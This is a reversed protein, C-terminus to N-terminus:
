AILAITAEANEAWNSADEFRIGRLALAQCLGDRLAEPAAAPVLIAGAYDAISEPLGGVDSVVIPLGANMALHLPGSASSRRYPLAVLDAGAFWRSVEADPVYHNVFTIRDRHQSAAILKGPETWDEWTEGVVTLWWKEDDAALMEFARILDELGKYPRITGFFLINCRDAPAERLPNAQGVAYHSYPGHRVVAISRGGVGFSRELARRDFESHVIYGDAMRMLRRGFRRVYSRAPAMGAEGTDQIEHIEIIIKAGRMRAFLALLAYSHLVAGTWWQFLVAGPRQTALFRLARLMSPLWYWDVGDFVPIQDPYREDTLTRDGVRARGPYLTRPILRRMLIVSVASRQSLAESLYRTYHSIGSIFHTSSGVVLVRTPWADDPRSVTQSGDSARDHPATIAGTRTAKGVLYGAATVATGLVISLSRGVGAPERSLVAAKIGKALGAPLTRRVYAREAALGDEAGLFGVITSKAVGEDYCRAIFYRVSARASPVRHSVTVAPDHLWVTQPWRQSARICLDTEETGSRAGTKGFGSRFGGLAILADRRVFMNTAILNRVAGPASPLGPYTCGVTWHFEEAMWRPAEDDWAPVVTGGVGLLRPDDFWGLAREIWQPAAVADDDLFAVIAGTAADVGRNRAAGAGRVGSNEVVIVGPLSARAHTFLQPNNDIVVVVEKAPQTQARVSEVAALLDDWRRESYACLVVSVDPGARATESM